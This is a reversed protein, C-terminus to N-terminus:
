CVTDTYLSNELLNGYATIRIGGETLAPATSNSRPVSSISWHRPIDEVTSYTHTLVDKSAYQNTKICVRREMKEVYDLTKTVPTSLQMDKNLEIPRQLLTTSILILVLTVLTILSTTFIVKNRPVTKNSLQIVSVFLRFTLVSFALLLIFILPSM